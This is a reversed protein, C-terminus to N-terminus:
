PVVLSGATGGFDDTIPPLERPVGWDGHNVRLNVRHPGPAVPDTLTVQYVGPKVEVMPVPQWGTFDAMIEVTAKAPATFRLTRADVLVDTVGNLADYRAVAPSRKRLRFTDSVRLGGGIFHAGPAGRVLDAPYSGGAIVLAVGDFLTMRAEANFWSAVGGLLVGSRTGVTASVAFRGYESQIVSQLDTYHAVGARTTSLTISPTVHPLAVLGGIEGRGVFQGFVSDNDTSGVAGAVWAAFPGQDIRLRPTIVGSLVPPTSRYWLEAGEGGLDWRLRGAIPGGIGATADVIASTHGTEFESFAGDVGLRLGRDAYTVTPALTFVGSALYGDYTARAANADLSTFLQAAARSPYGCVSAVLAVRTLWRV